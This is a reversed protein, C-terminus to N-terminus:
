RRTKPKLCYTAMGALHGCHKAVRTTRDMLPFCYADPMPFRKRALNITGIILPEIIAPLANSVVKVASLVLFVASKLPPRRKGRIYGEGLGRNFFTRHLGWCTDRALHSVTAVFCKGYDYGLHRMRNTIETDEATPFRFHVDFGGTERLVSARIITNATNLSDLWDGRSLSTNFGIHACYRSILGQTERCVIRGGLAACPSEVMAAVLNSLWDDDPICDDDTFAVFEGRASEIGLNRAAGPGGHAHTLPKITIEDRREALSQLWPLTGDTSGDDVVIVEFADRPYDQRRIGEIAQKLLNLRNRTPIVVSVFPCEM